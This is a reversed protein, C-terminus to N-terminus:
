FNSSGHVAYYVADSSLVASFSLLVKYLIIDMFLVVPFYQETARIPIAVSKSKM